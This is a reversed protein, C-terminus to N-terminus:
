GEETVVVVERPVGVPQDCELCHLLIWKRGNRVQRVTVIYDHSCIRPPPPPTDDEM